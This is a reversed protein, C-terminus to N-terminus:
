WRLRRPLRSVAALMEDTIDVFPSPRGVSVGAVVNAIDDHGGPPHDLLEIRNSNLMPLLERYLDSKPKEAVFKRGCVVAKKHKRRSSGAAGPPRSLPAFLGKESFYERREGAPGFYTNAVIRSGILIETATHPM